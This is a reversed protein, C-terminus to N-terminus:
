YGGFERVSEYLAARHEMPVGRMMDGTEIRLGGNGKVGSAMFDRVTQRINEPPGLKIIEDAIVAQIDVDEGLDARVRAVDVLPHTLANIGTLGFHKKIVPFLHTGSGCHHLETGPTTGRRANTEKIIPVFFREFQEASIMEIGHDSYELAWPHERSDPYWESILAEIWLVVKRLFRDVFDPDSIMDEMLGIGRIDLANTMLGHSGMYYAVSEVPKGLFSMGAAIEEMRTDFHKILPLLGAEHLDPMPMQECEEKSLNMQMHAIVSNERYMLKCGLWSPVQVPHFDVSIPWMDPTEGLIFDYIPLERRRKAAGLQVKAMVEPDEYYDRYDLEIEDAYFGHVHPYDNCLLPVRVPVGKEWAQLVLKAEENHKKVWAAESDIDFTQTNM